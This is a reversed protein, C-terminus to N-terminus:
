KCDKDFNLESFKLDNATPLIIKYCMFDVLIHCYERM